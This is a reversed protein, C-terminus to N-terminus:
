DFRIEEFSFANHNWNELITLTKQDTKIYKYLEESEQTPITTDNRVHYMDVPVITQRAYQANYFIDRGFECFPGYTRKCMSYISSFTNILIVKKLRPHNAGLYIAPSGGLSHGMVIINEEAFGKAKLHELAGQATQYVSNQDLDGSSTHFRPYAPSLVSGKTMLEPFFSPIRGSNGHLYLIATESDTNPFYWTDIVQGTSLFFYEQQYPVSPIVGFSRETKFILRKSQNVLILSIVIWVSLLGLTVLFGFWFMRDIITTNM